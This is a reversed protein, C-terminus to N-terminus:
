HAVRSGSWLPRGQPDRLAVTRGDLDLALATLTEGARAVAIQVFDGPQLGVGSEELFAKPGLYIALTRTGGEAQTKVHAVLYVPQGICPRAQEVSRVVGQISALPEHADLVTVGSCHPYPQDVGAVLEGAVPNLVGNAFGVTIDIALIFASVNM